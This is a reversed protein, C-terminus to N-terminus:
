FKPHNNKDCCREEFVRAHRVHVRSTLFLFRRCYVCWLFKGKEDFSQEPPHEESMAAALTDGSGVTHVTGVSREDESM